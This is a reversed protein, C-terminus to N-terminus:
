VWHLVHAAALCRTLTLQITQSLSTDYPFKDFCMNECLPLLGSCSIILQSHPLVIRLYLRGFCKSLLFCKSFIIKTEYIEKIYITYYYISSSLLIIASCDFRM